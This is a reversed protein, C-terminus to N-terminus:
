QSHIDYRNKISAKWNEYLALAEERSDVPSVIPSPYGIERLMDACSSVEWPAHICSAQLSGLEPLWRRIYRGEPDFKKSQLVPNFIRFYPAADAGCGATWQWGLTNNALDADVLTDWFWEAGRLWHIRLNKTLLSAVLLRARNHMWGTQWLQRMAADIVPIGTRGRQWAELEPAETRWPFNSWEPRLPRHTTEPFHYLLYYGFERWALQRRFSEVAKPSVGTREAEGVVRWILHPSIEGNALYPSLKSTVEQDLRDRARDYHPLGYALFTRLMSWAATEGPTWHQAITQSAWDPQPLLELSALTDSEPWFAPAPLRAPPLFPAPPIYQQRLAKWFPTFVRYVDGNQTRLKEPDLLTRGVTEILRISRRRLVPAISSALRREHPLLPLNWCLTAVPLTELLQILAEAPDEAVRLILRSGRRQLEADLAALSHHLWWRRAAGPREFGEGQRPWIFLPVIPHGTRLAADLAPNEALRLDGPTFLLLTIPMADTWCKLVQYGGM